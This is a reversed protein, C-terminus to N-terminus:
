FVGPSAGFPSPDHTGVQCADLDFGAMPDVSGDYPLEVFDLMDTGSAVTPMRFNPLGHNSNPTAGDSSNHTPLPPMGPVGGDPLGRMSSSAPSDFMNGPMPLQPPQRLPTTIRPVGNYQSVHTMGHGTGLAHVVSSSAPTDAQTTPVVDALVAPMIGNNHAVLDNLADQDGDEAAVWCAMAVTDPSFPFSQVIMRAVQVPTMMHKFITSIWDLKLVHEERLNKKLREITESAKLYQIATHRAGIAAPTAALLDQHILKRQEVIASMKSTFLRRLQALNHKQEQSLSLSRAVNLWMEPSDEAYDNCTEELKCAVFAKTVTPNTIAVRMVLITVDNIMRAVREQLHTEGPNNDLEVLCAGLENVYEKWIKILGERSMSKIQQPTVTLEQGEKVELHLTDKFTESISDESAAAQPATRLREIEEDRMQLVRLLLQVRSELASKDQLLLGMGQQQEAVRAELEAVKAKQRERFRRQAMRNKNQLDV